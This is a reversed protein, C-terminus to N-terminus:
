KQSWDVIYKIFIRVRLGIAWKRIMPIVENKKIMHKKSCVAHAQIQWQVGNKDVFTGAPIKYGLFDVPVMGTNHMYNSLTKIAPTFKAEMERAQTRKLSKAVPM